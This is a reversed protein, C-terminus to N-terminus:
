VIKSVHIMFDTNEAKKIADHTGRSEGDWVAIFGVTDYNERAWDIMEANRIHGAAKGYKDWDAKFVKKEIGNDNAYKDALSDVGKAGGHIIMGIDHGFEEEESDEGSKKHEINKLFKAGSLARELWFMDTISRSGSFIIPIKRREVDKNLVKISDWDVSEIDTEHNFIVKFDKATFFKSFKKIFKKLRKLYWGTHEDPNDADWMEIPKSDKYARINSVAGDGSVYHKFRDGPVPKIGTKEWHKIAIEYPASRNRGGNGSGLEVKKKYTDISDKLTGKKAFDEPTWDHNIIMNYTEQYIECIKRTDELILANITDSLFKRGFPEFLRSIFSGGKIKVKEKGPELLAYNKKKYSIMRVARGDFDINIGEPMRNTLSKVYDEDDKIQDYAYPCDPDVFMDMVRKKDEDDGKTYVFSPAQCLVGDTDAEIIYGGDEEILEIIKKILYQGITAVRDAESFDNFSARKYGLQGYFSNILIKYSNQENDLSQYEISDKDYDKRANKKEFRLGTLLKLLKPFLDLEDGEPQVDYHIMISPYLSAVDAYVVNKFVGTKFIDTYGGVEQKGIEYTPFSNYQNLYERIMLMEIKTATGGLHVKQYTMPIMKTSFFTSGGLHDSLKACEYTDDEAYRLLPMPDNDWFWSIKDGEIYSRDEKSFGFHKAVPKLGYASLNRRTVDYNMVEFYTDIVHRGLIQYNTYSIDREAFRKSSEYFRPVEGDRSINFDISHFKCRNFIYPLDYAYINHGEITDPDLDKIIECLKTLLIHEDECCIGDPVDETAKDNDLYLTAKFDRNDELTVIIIKDEPNDANPFQYRPSYTEIDLRLRHVDNFEMGKFLTMGTQMLFQEEVTKVIYLQKPYDKINETVGKNHAYEKIAGVAWWMQKWSGFWVLYKYYQDGELEMWEYSDKSFLTMYEMDHLFFFPIIKRFETRIEDNERFYLQMYAEGEKPDDSALHLGVLNEEVNKGYLIEEM